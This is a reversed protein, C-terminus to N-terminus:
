NAQGDLMRTLVRDRKIVHHYLAAVVHLVVLALLVYAMYIHWNEYDRANIRNETTFQPMRFLGFWSSYDPKHAGSHAWGLFGVLLTLVYLSAQNIRALVRGWLPMESPLAPVPHFARWIIRLAMMLLIVYGIDAHISRHFFRDPRAPIRNMWWGYALMGIIAVGLGWHFMRSVSDWGTVKNNMCGAVAFDRRRIGLPISGFDQIM